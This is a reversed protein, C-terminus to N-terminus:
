SEMHFIYLKKRYFSHPLNDCQRKNIYYNFLRMRSFTEMGPLQRKRNGFPSVSRRPKQFFRHPPRGPRPSIGCHPPAWQPPSAAYSPVLSQSAIFSRQATQRSTGILSSTLCRSKYGELPYQFSYGELVRFPM